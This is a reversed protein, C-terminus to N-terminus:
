NRDRSQSNLMTFQANANAAAGALRSLAEDRVAAFLSMADPPLPEEPPLTRQEVLPNVFAGNKTLAYHLHPGTALGSSGVFGVTEGQEVREGARLGAAFASLHLYRSEYGSGHRLRVMRGNTGDHTVSLVTGGAAAIVPAGVPAAYDIGRHARATHLV